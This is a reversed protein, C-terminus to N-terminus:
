GDLVSGNLPRTGIRCPRYLTDIQERRHSVGILNETDPLVVLVVAFLLYLAVPLGLFPIAFAPARLMRVSEYKAETLYARLLRAFPMVARTSGGGIELSSVNPIHEAAHIGNM